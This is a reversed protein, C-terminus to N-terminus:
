VMVPSDEMVTRLTELDTNGQKDVVALRAQDQELSSLFRFQRVMVVLVVTVYVLVLGQLM